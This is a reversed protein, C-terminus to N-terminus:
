LMAKFYNLLIEDNLKRPTFIEMVQIRNSVSFFSKLKRKLGRETKVSTYGINFSKCIYKATYQHVTEHYKDYVPTDKKGSLIRFIGGGQNNIIIVKFDKKWYENWLANVDYFFSLDGTILITQIKSVSAAGVATSVSGDIGSTGRNCFVEVTKPLDFLQAYRITSSNSLQLKCQKPICKFIIDFVKLDSFKIKKLYTMGALRHKNYLSYIRSNFDSMILCKSHKLLYEFFYQPEIKVHKTLVYFTDYAKKIDIHWHQEPSFYRLFKKIKKSVVMGGISVLLNPKFAKLVEDDENEIPTILVDISNIFRPHQVNSNKETLVVISPDKAWWEMLDESISNPPLQGILIIKKEASNWTPLFLDWSIEERKEHIITTELQPLLAIDTSGYLPEEIPVNLHVPGSKSIATNLVENLLKENKVQINNQIKEIESVSSNSPILLQKSNKLITETSHTVDPHLNAIAEIHAEFVKPQRITQGDGIDIQHPLRDASIVVLPIDNYYAESVAPYYNLLASGSTCVVAVPHKLQQAIGLAFFAASREDVISYTTFSDNQTFGYILPANRSGPSIVIHYIKKLLCYNVVTQALPVEPYVQKM